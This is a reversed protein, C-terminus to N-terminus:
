APRWCLSLYLATTTAPLLISPKYHPKLLPKTKGMPLKRATPPMMKANKSSALNIFASQEDLRAIREANAQFNLACPASWPSKLVLTATIFFKAASKASPSATKKDPPNVESEANLEYEAYLRVLEKIHEDSLENRKNGLSKDM